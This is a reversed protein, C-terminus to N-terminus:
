PTKENTWQTGAIAPYSVGQVTSYTQAITLGVCSAVSLEYELDTADPYTLYKIADNAFTSIDYTTPSKM